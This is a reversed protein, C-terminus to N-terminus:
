ASSSQDVVAPRYREQGRRAWGGAIGGYMVRRGVGNMLRLRPLRFTVCRGVEYGVYFRQNDAAM